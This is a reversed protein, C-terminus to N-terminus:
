LQRIEQSAKLLQVNQAKYSVALPNLMVDLVPNGGYYTPSDSATLFDIADRIDLRTQRVVDCAYDHGYSDELYQFNAEVQSCLSDDSSSPSFEFASYNLKSYIIGFLSIM